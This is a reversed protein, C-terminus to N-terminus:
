PKESLPAAASAREGSMVRDYVEMVQRRTAERRGSNDVIYDAHARKADIPMQARIRAEADAESLGDRQM